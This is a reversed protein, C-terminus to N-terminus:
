SCTVGIFAGIFALFALIILCTSMTDLNSNLEHIDNSIKEAVQKLENFQENNM